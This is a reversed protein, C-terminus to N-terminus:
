KAGSSVGSGAQGDNGIQPLGLSKRHQPIAVRLVAAMGPSKTARPACGLLYRIGACCSRLSKIPVRQFGRGAHVSRKPLHAHFGANLRSTKM